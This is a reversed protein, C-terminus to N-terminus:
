IEKPLSGDPALFREGIDLFRVREGDDLKALGRNVERIKARKPDNADAGRPFIGMVLLKSDPLKERVREAVRVVGRRIEDAPDGINNTGILLVVVKPRVRDLEGNEIRWLVHETRDGGIGFNAPDYKGFYRDWLQMHEGWSWGNTISDGLFVVGIGPDRARELFAYHARLFDCHIKGENDLKIAAVDSDALLLGPALVAVAVLSILLDRM